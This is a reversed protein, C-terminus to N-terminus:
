LKRNKKGFSQHSNGIKYDKQISILIEMKENFEKNKKDMRTLTASVSGVTLSYVFVGFFMWVIAFISFIFFNLYSKIEELSNLM